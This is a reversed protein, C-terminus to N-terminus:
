GVPSDAEIESNGGKIGKLVGFMSSWKQIAERTWQLGQIVKVVRGDGAVGEKYGDDVPSNEERAFPECHFEIGETVDTLMGQVGEECQTLDDNWPCVWWRENVHEPEDDDQCDVATKRVHGLGSFTEVDVGEQVRTSAVRTTNSAIDCDQGYGLDDNQANDFKDDPGAFPERFSLETHHALEM